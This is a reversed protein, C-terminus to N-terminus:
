DFVHTSAKLPLPNMQRAVAPWHSTASVHLPVEPVHGASPNADVDVLQVPEECPPAHSSSGASRQEPVALVHTSAKLALVTVQRAEAPWHSTASVHLPVEPM